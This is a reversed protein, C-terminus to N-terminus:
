FKIPSFPVVMFEGLMAICNSFFRKPSKERNLTSIGFLLSQLLNTTPDPIKSLYKIQNEVQIVIKSIKLIFKILKIRLM